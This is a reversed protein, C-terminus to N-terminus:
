FLATNVGIGFALTVVATLTFAPNKRLARAAYRLDQTFEDIWRWGRQDRSQEAVGDVHGFQRRAAYAADTLSMGARVKAATQLELHHRLEEVMDADLKRRRFFTSLGRSFKM